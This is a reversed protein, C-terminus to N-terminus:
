VWPLLEICSRKRILILQRGAVEKSISGFMGCGGHFILVGRRKNAAPVRPCYIRVPVEDFHLDKIFCKSDRCAPLGDVLLRILAESMVSADRFESFVSDHLLVSFKGQRGTLFCPFWKVQRHCDWLVSMLFCPLSKTKQM